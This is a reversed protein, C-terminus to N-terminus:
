IFHIEPELDVGSNQKVKAKVTKMLKEVDDATAAARCEICLLSRQLRNM